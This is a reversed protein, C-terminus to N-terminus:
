SREDVAPPASESSSQLVLTELLDFQRQSDRVVSSLYSSIRDIVVERCGEIEEIARLVDRATSNEIKLLYESQGVDEMLWDVKPDFSIAVTPRRSVFGLIISHLRSAVLLDVSTLVGVYERWSTIEPIYLQRGACSAARSNLHGMLEATVNENDGIDSWVIVVFYGRDFLESLLDAMQVLYRRYIDGHEDPWREPKRYSILSVAIVRRSGALHRIKSNAQTDPLCASFAADPVVEDKLAEGYLTAAIAWSNRDRYTRHMAAGLAASLFFRGTATRVKCAGVSVFAYPVRALRSLVSWKFLAFPHGWAGGWEEDLQGGGAVIAM